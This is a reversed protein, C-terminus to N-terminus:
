VTNSEELVELYLIRNNRHKVISRLPRRKGSHAHRSFKPIFVTKFLERLSSASATAALTSSLSTSTSAIFSTTFDFSTRIDVNDRSTILREALSPPQILYFTAMLIKEKVKNVIFCVNTSLYIPLNTGLYTCSMPVRYM